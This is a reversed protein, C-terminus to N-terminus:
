GAPAFMRHFMADGMSQIDGRPSRVIWTGPPCDMWHGTEDRYCRFKGSRDMQVKRSGMSMERHLWVPVQESPRVQWADFCGKGGVKSAWRM